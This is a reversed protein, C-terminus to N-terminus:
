VTRKLYPIKKILLIIIISILWVIVPLVFLHILSNNALLHYRDVRDIFFYHIVYVGLSAGSVHRLLSQIRESPEWSYLRSKVFAFVTASWGLGFIGWISYSASQYSGRKHSLYITLAIMVLASFIGFIYLYREKNELSLNHLYWGIAFIGISGSAGISLYGELALSPQHQLQYYYSFLGIVVLNLGILYQITKKNEKIFIKSLIPVSLYFGIIVYFFWFIPQITGHLFGDLLRSYTNFSKLSYHWDYHNFYLFWVISWVVFPIAIRKFRKKFFIETTERQRYNLINAASIMLFIPVAFIFLVQISVALNWRMGAANMFAFSSSHLMVVAFTAVINLIDLYYYRRKM